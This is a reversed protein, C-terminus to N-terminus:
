TTKEGVSMLAHATRIGKRITVRNNALRDGRFVGKTKKRYKVRSYLAAFLVVVPIVGLNSWLHDRVM